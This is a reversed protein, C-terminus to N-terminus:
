DGGKQTLKRRLAVLRLCLDTVEDAVMRAETSDPHEQAVNELYVRLDLAEELADQMSDRGNHSQLRVGYRAAGLRDREQMLRYLSWIDDNDRGSPRSLGKQRLRDLVLDWSAPRDNPVPPAQDGERPKRFTEPNM